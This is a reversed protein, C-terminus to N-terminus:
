FLTTQVDDPVENGWCDWGEVQQRAFLEIRPLDGLLEVIKNRAIDPKKSHKEPITEIIQHVSHSIPKLGKGKKALLCIEANARTYYGCGWFNTQKKTKKVWVFATTRYTFGWAAICSIAQQIMPFTTWLFLISNKESIKNIPLKELNNKDILEYHNNAFGRSTGKQSPKNKYNWAPDAYIINYKKDTNFIDVKM